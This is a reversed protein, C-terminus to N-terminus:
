MKRMARYKRMPPSALTILALVILVAVIIVIVTLWTPM